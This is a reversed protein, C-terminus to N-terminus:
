LVEQNLLLGLVKHMQLSLRAGQLEKLLRLTKQISGPDLGLPQLYLPKKSCFVERPICGVLFGEDVVFKWEDAREVLGEAVAYDPPKPSAAVWDLAHLWDPCLTANTEIHVRCGQAKLRSVLTGLSLLTPEGGTLVVYPSKLEKLIEESSLWSVGKVSLSGPEDCFSCRLNCGAFRIFTAYLGSHVGEGQFSSFIESVPYRDLTQM